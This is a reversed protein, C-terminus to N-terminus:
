YVLLYYLYKIVETKFATVGQRHQWWNERNYDPLDLAIVRVMFKSPFARHLTWSVRRTSFIETPVIISRLNRHELWARLAFVEQHTNRLANGFTEIASAPTGLELLIAESDLSDVLIEKVLGERYYQAAALPRDAPGGDFVAVADAPGSPDSAIWLYAASFLLPERGFWAGTGLVVAVALVAL